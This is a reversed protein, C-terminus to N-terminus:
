KQLIWSCAFMKQRMVPISETNKLIVFRADMIWLHVAEDLKYLLQFENM